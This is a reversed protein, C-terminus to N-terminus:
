ESSSGIAFGGVRPRFRKTSGGPMSGERGAARSATGFQSGGAHENVSRVDSILIGAKDEVRYRADPLACIAKTIVTTVTAANTM